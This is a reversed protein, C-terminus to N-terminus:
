IGCYVTARAQVTPENSVIQGNLIIPYNHPTEIAVELKESRDTVHFSQDYRGTPALYWPQCGDNQWRPLGFYECIKHGAAQTPSESFAADGVRCCAFDLPFSNPENVQIHYPGPAVVMAAPTKGSTSWYGKELMTKVMDGTNM